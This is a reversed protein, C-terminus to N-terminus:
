VSVSVSVCERERSIRCTVFWILLDGRFVKVSRCPTMDWFVTYGEDVSRHCGKVEPLAMQKVPRDRWHGSATHGTCAATHLVCDRWRAISLCQCTRAVPLLPSVLQQAELCILLQTFKLRILKSFKVPPLCRMRSHPATEHSQQFLFDPCRRPELRRDRM